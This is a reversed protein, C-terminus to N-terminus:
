LHVFHGLVILCINAYVGAFVDDMVIGVGGKLKKDAWGAPFPKLIDFIRFFVFGAIAAKWSWAHGIMTVIYGAVEDIVIKQPDKEGFEVAAKDSVWCSFLIFVVAFLIYHLIPLGSIGWFLAVGVITGFTGPAAPIYGAGLGTALFKIIAKM